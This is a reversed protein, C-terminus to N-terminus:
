QQLLVEVAQALAPDNAESFLDWRTPVSYDPVIGTEEWVGAQDRSAGAPLFTESAIWARSGDDFNFGWLREVNGLTNRGVIVARGANKLVGSFIEGYSATDNDVMVVLPLSLSGEIDRGNLDLPDSENRSIFAGQEGDVFYSLIPHAVSSSGGGNMRNDIVLGELRESASMAELADRVQRPFTEDDFSPLYIYGIRTGPVICYDITAAGTIRRRTITLDVPTDFGPRQVTINVDTGEPGRIKDTRLMGEEDVVPEGGVAVIVDHSRLGAELAPSGDFVHSIVGSRTELVAQVLVGIGVYDNNGALRADEEAVTEPDQYGSHEDGLEYIMRAMSMSFDEPALGGEILARYKEGTADWDVGNYDTYVYNDRVAEWLEQFVQLQQETTAADVATNAPLDPLPYPTPEPLNVVDDPMQAVAAGPEYLCYRVGDDNYSFEPGGLFSDSVPSTTPDAEATPDSGGAETPVPAITVGPERTGRPEPGNATSPLVTQCAIGALLLAALALRPAFTKLRTTSM